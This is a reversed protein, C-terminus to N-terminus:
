PGRVPRTANEIVLEGILAQPSLRLLFRFAEAVDEPKLMWDKEDELYATM